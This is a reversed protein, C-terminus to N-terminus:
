QTRGATDRLDEHLVDGGAVTLFGHLREGAALKGVSHHHGFVVVQVQVVSVLESLRASAGRPGGAEPGATSNSAAGGRWVNVRVRFCCVSLNEKQACLNLGLDVNAQTAASFGDTVNLM